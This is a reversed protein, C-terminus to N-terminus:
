SSPKSTTDLPANNSKPSSRSSSMSIKLLYCGEHVIRGLEDTKALELNVPKKCIRCTVRFGGNDAM